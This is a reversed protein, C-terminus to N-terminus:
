LYAMSGQPKLGNSEQPVNLANERQGSESVTLPTPWGRGREFGQPEMGGRYGISMRKATSIRAIATRISPAVASRSDQVDAPKGDPPM